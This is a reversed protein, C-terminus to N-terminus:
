SDALAAKEVGWAKNEYLELLFCLSSLRNLYRLIETNTLHDEHLMRVIKREARRVVTRSLALAAGSPSDGPLIFGEPIKIGKGIEDAKTELWQVRANDIKRFKQANEVTASVEAMMHYLDKQIEILIRKSIDLRCKSRALGLTANVEDLTGVAEIRLHYKPVRGEGLQGTYGDDGASTYFKNM